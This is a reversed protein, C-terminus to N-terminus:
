GRYPTTKKAGMHHEEFVGIPRGHKAVAEDYNSYVTGRQESSDAIPEQPAELLKREELQKNSRADWERAFRYPGVAEELWKRLTKDSPPFQANEADVKLIAREGAWQPYQAMVDIMVAIYGEPDHAGLNPYGALLRKTLKRAMEVPMPELSVSALTSTPGPRQGASSKPPATPDIRAHASAVLSDTKLHEM